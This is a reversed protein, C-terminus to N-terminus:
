MPDTEEEEESASRPQDQGGDDRATLFPALFIDGVFVVSVLSLLQPFGNFGRQLRPHPVRQNQEATQDSPSGFHNYKTHHILHYESSPRLYPALCSTALYPHSRFLVLM